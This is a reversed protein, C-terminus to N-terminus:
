AFFSAATVHLEHILLLLPQSVLRDPSEEQEM